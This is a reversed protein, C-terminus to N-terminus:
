KPTSLDVTGEPLFRVGEIDTFRMQEGIVGDTMTYTKHGSALKVGSVDTLGDLTLFKEPGVKKRGLIKNTVTYYTGRTEKTEPDILLVYYDDPSDGSDASYTIKVQDYMKGQFEKQETLKEFHCGEDNFIFPIGIFYYPTLSWFQYPPTFTADPPTIWYGDANKGFKIDKGEVEHKVALSKTDVTQTTDVIVQPGLDTMHYTWRFQLQGNGYWQDLGGHAKISAMVLDRGENVEAKKEAGDDSCSTLFIGIGSLVSLKFTNM